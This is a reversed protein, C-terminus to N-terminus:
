PSKRAWPRERVALVLGVVAAACLVAWTRAAREGEGGLPFLVLRRGIPNALMAGLLLLVLSSVVVEGPEDLRLRAVGALCFALVWTGALELLMLRDTRQAVWWGVAVAVGVFVGPTAALARVGVQVSRRTPCASTVAAAADDLACGASAGVAVLALQVIRMGSGGGVVVGVAGLGAGVAVLALLARWPAVRLLPALM